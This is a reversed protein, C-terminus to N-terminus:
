RGMMAQRIPAFTMEDYGVMAMTRNGDKWVLVPVGMDMNNAMIVEAFGEIFDHSKRLNATRGAHGDAPPPADTSRYFARLDEAEWWRWLLKADRHEWLAAVVSREGADSRPRGNRDKRAYMVWRVEVGAKLLRKQEMAKLAGCNPCNRFAVAYLVKGNPKVDPDRFGIWAAKDLLSWLDNAGRRIQTPQEVFEGGMQDQYYPNAASVGSLSLFLGAFIWLRSLHQRM